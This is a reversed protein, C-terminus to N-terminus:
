VGMNEVVGDGDVVPSLDRGFLLAIDDAAGSEIMEAKLKLLASKYIRDVHSKSLSMQLGINRFSTQSWIRAEVVWREREGLVDMAAVVANMIPLLEEYSLKPMNHPVTEMLAQLATSPIYPNLVDLPSPRWEGGRRTPLPSVPFV